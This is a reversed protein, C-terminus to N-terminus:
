RVEELMALVEDQDKYKEGKLDRLESKLKHVERSKQAVEVRHKYERLWEWVFGVLVGFITGGLFIVFVPLDISWNVGLWQSLDEPLVSLQTITRNAVAVVVMVLALSILFAYRLYRM